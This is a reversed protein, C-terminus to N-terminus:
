PKWTLIHNWTIIFNIFVFHLIQCEHEKNNFKNRFLLSWMKDRKGLEKLLNLWLSSNTKRCFFFLCIEGEQQHWFSGFTM